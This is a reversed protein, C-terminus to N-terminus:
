LADTEWELVGRQRHSGDLAMAVDAHPTVLPTVEGGIWRALARDPDGLDALHEYWCWRWVVADYGAFVMLNLPYDESDSCRRFDDRFFFLPKRWAIAMGVEVMVGEDPPCGNVVAFVADAHRVANVNAQGIRWAWQPSTPDDVDVAAFPEWVEIGLDELAVVLDRLPGAALSRSFGYGNALYLTPKTM